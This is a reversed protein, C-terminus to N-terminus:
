EFKTKNREIWQLHRDLAGKNTASVDYARQGMAQSFLTDDLLKIVAATIMKENHVIMVANAAKLLQSIAVFNHLYHGSLIPLSLAAPEILNHGGVPVLSGGVFAIDSAAYLLRLEGITDGLLIDTQETPLENRSRQVFSFSQSQCLQAVKKFREPHRPVLILLATPHKERIKKFSDLLISEEGDHTSAAIITPRNAWQSRLQKGQEVLSLPLQLDFKINGTVWLKQRALGLTVFREGDMNSQAAVLSINALMKRTLTGIRAYGKCSRVSLRANALLIPIHRAHTYHLLNPWLETEMIICLAPNCHKLFGNVATPLDLPAYVHYVQDKFNKVVQASGTPTATTVVITHNPYRKLLAKILPTAAITEGVSVAHIWISKGAVSPIHGFREPWRQRYSPATRSRWLLRLMVFPTALYILLTYLYRM